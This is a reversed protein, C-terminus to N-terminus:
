EEDEWDFDDIGEKDPRTDPEPQPEAPTTAPGEAPTEPAGEDTLSGEDPGLEGLGRTGGKAELTAQEAYSRALKSLELSTKFESEGAEELAKEIHRQALTYPYPANVDAGAETAQVLARDAAVLRLTALSATCGSALAGSLALLLAAHSRIV